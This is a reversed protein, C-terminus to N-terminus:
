YLIEQPFILKSSTLNKNNTRRKTKQTLNNIRNDIDNNTYLIKGFHKLQADEYKGANSKHLIKLHNKLKDALPLKFKDSYYFSNVVCLAYNANLEYVLNIHKNQLFSAFHKTYYFKNENFSFVISSFNFFATNPIYKELEFDIVQQSNKLAWTDKLFWLDVNTNNITIKYGGFSNKRYNYEKILEEVDITKEMFIDVDRYDSIKLFYNRIIGSFVYVHTDTNLKEILEFVSKDITKKLHSKFKIEAMNIEEAIEVLKKAM